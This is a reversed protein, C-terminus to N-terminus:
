GNTFVEKLDYILIKDLDCIRQVEEYGGLIYSKGIIDYYINSRNVMDNDIVKIPQYRETLQDIVPSPREIRVVDIVVYRYGKEYYGKLM